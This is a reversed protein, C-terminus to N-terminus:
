RGSRPSRHCDTKERASGSDTCADGALDHLPGALMKATVANFRRATMGRFAATEERLIVGDPAALSGMFCLIPLANVRFQVLRQVIQQSVIIRGCVTRFKNILGSWWNDHMEPGIMTGLYNAFSEIKSFDRHAVWGRLDQCALRGYWIWDSKKHNLNMGTVADVTRVPHAIFAILVKFSCAAVAFDDARACASPLLFSPLSPDKPLVVETLWRFIPDFAPTFFGVPLLAM